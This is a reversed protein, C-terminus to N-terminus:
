GFTKEQRNDKPFSKTQTKVIGLIELLRVTELLPKCPHKKPRKSCLIAVNQGNKALEQRVHVRILSQVTLM